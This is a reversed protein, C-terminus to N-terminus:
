KTELATLRADISSFIFSFLEPYRVGLRSKKTAGSPAEEETHYINNDKEWWTSSIFLGYNSADLGEASFALQVEQAVIGNHTRASDGKETVKDKWRFTKFLTSLKKAVNLEKTTASTIDQKENQDSTQITGNTAFIDDFRESGGGLDCTNDTTSGSNDTPMIQGNGLRWGAHGSTSSFIALDDTSIGVHGITTGAKRFDIISGENSTRNLFVCSDGSVTALLEGTAKLEAGVTGIGTSTKGVLLHGNSDMRAKESGAIKIAVADNTSLNIGSDSDGSVNVIEDVQVTAGGAGNKIKDVFITGM